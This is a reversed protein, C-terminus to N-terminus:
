AARAPKTGVQYGLNRNGSVIPATKDIPIVQICSMYIFLSELTYADDKPTSESPEELVLSVSSSIKGTGEKSELAVDEKLFENRFVISANEALIDHV